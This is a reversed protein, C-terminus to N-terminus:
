TNAAYHEEDCTQFIHGESALFELDADFTRPNFNPIGKQIQKVHVGEEIHTFKRCYKFIEAKQGMLGRCSANEPDIGGVSPQNNWLSGRQAASSSSAAVASDETALPLLYTGELASIKGSNVIDPIDKSYYLEALKTELRFADVERLDDIERIDFAVINLSEDFSRLKGVVAVITDEVFSSTADKSATVGQYHIISFRGMDRDVDTLEYHISQGDDMSDVKVVKGIVQVTSFSYKGLTIKEESVNLAALSAVSVPLPVKDSSRSSDTDVNQSAAFSVEGWGGASDMQFSRDTLAM